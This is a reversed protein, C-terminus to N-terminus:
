PVVYTTNTCTPKSCIVFSQDLLDDRCLPPNSGSNSYINRVALTINGPGRSCLTYVTGSGSVYHANACYSYTGVAVDKYEANGAWGAHSQGSIGCSNDPCIDCTHLICPIGESSYCNDAYYNTGGAQRALQADSVKQTAFVNKCSVGFAVSMLMVVIWFKQTMQSRVVDVFQSNLM